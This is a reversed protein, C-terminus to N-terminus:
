LIEEREWPNGVVMKVLLSPAFKRFEEMWNYVLSAPCIVLSPKHEGEKEYERQLVAIVQLTKGLGMEDALIGGLHYRDLSCLWLFGKKQYGRLVDKLSAPVETDGDGKEFADLLKTLAEDRELYLNERKKMLSELYFARYAPVDAKGLIFEDISIGLNQLTASLEDLSPVQDHSIFDGNKLVTFKKRRRYRSLINVLEEPSIDEMQLKLHLTNGGGLSFEMRPRPLSRIKLRLFSPTARLTAQEMLLTLGSSLLEYVRPDDQECFCVKHDFDQYPLYESLLQLLAREKAENRELTEVAVKGKSSSVVGAKEMEGWDLLSGRMDRYEVVPSCVVNHMTLDFYLIFEPDSPLFDRIMEENKFQVEAIKRLKPLVKDFFSPLNHIGIRIPVQSNKEWGSSLLVKLWGRDLRGFYYAADKYTLYYAYSEGRLFRNEEGSVSLTIGMFEGTGEALYPKVLFVFPKEASQFRVAERVRAGLSSTFEVYQETGQLISYLYDLHYPELLIEEVSRSRGRLARKEEEKKSSQNVLMTMLRFIGRSGDTLNSERFATDSYDVKGPQTSATLTRVFEELNTIGQEYKGEHHYYFSVYCLGQGRLSIHLTLYLKRSTMQSASAAKGWLSSSMFTRGEISTYDGLNHDNAFDLLNYLSALAHGCLIWTGELSRQNMKKACVSCSAQYLTTAGIRLSVEIDPGKPAIIKQSSQLVQEPAAGQLMQYSVWVQPTKLAERKVLNDALRFDSVKSVRKLIKDKQFFQCIKTHREGSRERTKEREEEFKKELVKLSGYPGEEEAKEWDADFAPILSAPTIFSPSPPTEETSTTTSADHTTAADSPASDRTTEFTASTDAAGAPSDADSESASASSSADGAAVSDTVESSDTTVTASQSVESATTVTSSPTDEAATTVTASSTDEAATTVDSSSSSSSDKESVKGREKGDGEGPMKEKNQKRAKLFSALEVNGREALVHLCAAMHACARTGCSCRVFGVMMPSTALTGKLTVDMGDVTFSAEYNGMAGPKVQGAEYIHRGQELTEKEFAERWEM